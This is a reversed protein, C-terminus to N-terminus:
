RIVVGMSAEYITTIVDDVLTSGVQVDGIAAVHTGLHASLALGSLVRIDFGVGFTLGSGIRDTVAMAGVSPGPEYSGRALGAGAKLFFGSSGVYWLVIPSITLNRADVPPAESALTFDPSRLSLLELGVLVRQTLSGGVRVNYASGFGVTVGPCGACTNRVTGTGVTGELWLGQRVGQGDAEGPVVLWLAAAAALRIAGSSLGRRV